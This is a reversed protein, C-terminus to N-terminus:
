IAHPHPYLVFYKVRWVIFSVPYNMLMFVFCSLHFVHYKSWLASDKKLLQDTKLEDPFEGCKISCSLENDCDYTGAV